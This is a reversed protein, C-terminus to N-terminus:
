WSETGVEVGVECGGVVGVAVVVGANVPSRGGGVGIVGGGGGGGVGLEVGGGQAGGVEKM